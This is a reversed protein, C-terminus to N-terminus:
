DIITIVDVPKSSKVTKGEKHTSSSSPTEVSKKNESAFQMQKFNPGPQNEKDAVNQQGALCLGSGTQHKPAFKLLNEYEKVCTKYATVQENFAGATKEITVIANRGTGSPTLTMHCGKDKAHSSAWRRARTISGFVNRGFIMTRNPGKLFSEVDQHGPVVANPQHWNFQPEGKRVSEELDKIRLICVQQLCEPINEENCSYQRIIEKVFPKILKQQQQKSLSAIINVATSVSEALKHHKQPGAVIAQFIKTMAVDSEALWRTRSYYSMQSPNQRQSALEIFRMVLLNLVKVNQNDITLSIVPFLDALNSVGSILKDTESDLHIKNEFMFKFLTTTLSHDVNRGYYSNHYGVPQKTPYKLIDKVIVQVLAKPEIITLDKSIQLLVPINSIRTGKIIEIILNDVTESPFLTATKAIVKGAEKSTIGNSKLIKLLAESEENLNLIHCMKLVEVLSSDYPQFKGIKHWIYKFGKEGEQIEGKELLSLVYSVGDKLSSLCRIALSCDSRWLLLVKKQYWRDRTSGENGSPGSCGDGLDDTGWFEEDSDDIKRRKIKGSIMIKRKPFNIIDSRPHIDFSLEGAGSSNTQILPVFSDVDFSRENEEMDCCDGDCEYCDGYEEIRKNASAIHMEWNNKGCITSDYDMANKLGAVINKDRGKFFTLQGLNQKVSSDSYEYELGWCLYPVQPSDMLLNLTNCLRVANTSATFPSPKMGNGEWCLSYILAARYGSTVEQLEHPCSAYHAVFKCHTSSGSSSNEFVKSSKLHKVVLNGGTFVSPLQVILTGFMNDEKETDRHEDFKGGKTYILLKYIKGYITAGVLGLDSKVKTQIITNIQKVFEDNRIEFQNPELQYSNRVSIDVLTEEGMGYPSQKCFKKVCEFTTDILPFPLLGFDNLYILPVNPLEADLLLGGTAFDGSNTSHLKMLGRLDKKLQKISKTPQIGIKPTSNHNEDNANQEVKVSEVSDKEPNNPTKNVESAATNSTGQVSSNMLNKIDNNESTEERANSSEEHDSEDSRVSALESNNADFSSNGEAHSETEDDSHSESSDEESDEGDSFSRQRKWVPM